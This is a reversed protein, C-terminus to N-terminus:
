DQGFAVLAPARSVTVKDFVEIESLGMGRGELPTCTIRVFRATLPQEFTLPYSYALRGGAPLGAYKPSDDHEWPEYDAPPKWLDDHDIVGVHRWSKGDGCVAVDIRQPHCYAANPQHASIRVAGVPVDAGLDIVISVPDGGAWFATAGQVSESAVYDTPAVIKGNTLETGGSDPNRSAESSPRSVHYTKGRAINDAWVLIKAEPEFRRGADEGDSYGYVVGRREPDLGKLNMRVWNMTPDRRGAVN